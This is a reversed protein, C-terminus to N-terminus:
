WPSPPSGRDGTGSRTRATTPTEEFPRKEHVHTLQDGGQFLFSGLDPLLAAFFADRFL